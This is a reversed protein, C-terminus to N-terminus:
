DKSIQVNKDLYNVIIVYNNNIIGPEIVIEQNALYEPTGIYGNKLQKRIRISMVHQKYLVIYQSSYIANDQKQDRIITPVIKKRIYPHIYNLRIHFDTKNKNDSEEKLLENKSTPIGFEEKKVEKNDEQYDDFFSLLPQEISEKPIYQM